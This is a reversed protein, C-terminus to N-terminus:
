IGTTDSISSTRFSNGITLSHFALKRKKHANKKMLRRDKKRLRKFMKIKPYVPLAESTDSRAKSALDALSSAHYASKSTNFIVYM